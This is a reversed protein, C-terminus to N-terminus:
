VRESWRNRDLVRYGVAEAVHEPRIVGAGDLDAITRAVKLAKHYARASFGLERIATKLILQGDKTTECFKEVQRPELEANFSCKLGQYREKQFDRAKEVRAQIVSSLEGLARGTMEDVKLCPIELQIDIRDLLPGSIKSLYKKVQIPSCHCEKKPDTFYGCPCPNMAAVLMFRAPFTLTSSARSITVRGEEIPQRLVELVHRKFEPLEDLFLVGHHSLSVEGPKPNSGGGIMAADSITHHPSRFPRADLLALHGTLLGAVSHIKTAEMAEEFSIDSLIGPIRKALMTKGAGPPGIMLVNHSGAAAIELGRKAQYQGRVDAFDFQSLFKNETKSVPKEEKPFLDEPLDMRKGGKLIAIVESLNKAPLVGLGKVCLAEKANAYPIVFEYEPFETRLSVARPLIGRVPKLSGDLSLEGCFIRKKVFRVEIMEDATLIGVAIALDFSSGEKKLDAPALNVTIKKSPLAFGSNKLAARVRDASERCAADPLGVINFAPLGNAIDVEVAVNFADIGVVTSSHIIALVSSVSWLLM